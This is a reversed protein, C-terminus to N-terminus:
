CSRRRRLCLPELKPDAAGRSATYPDPALFHGDGPDHYRNQAYDLGTESDRFYTAYKETNSSTASPREDGYPFYKGVSGLRDQGTYGTTNKILKGGFYEFNATTRKAIATEVNLVPLM